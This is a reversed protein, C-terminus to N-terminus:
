VSVDVSCADDTNDNCDCTYIVRDTGLPAVYVPLMAGKKIPQASNPLPQNNTDVSSVTGGCEGTSKILYLTLSQGNTKALVFQTKGDCKGGSLHATDRSIVDAFFLAHDLKRFKLRKEKAKPM